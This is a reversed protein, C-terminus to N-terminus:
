AVRLPRPRFLVRDRRDEIVGAFHKRKLGLAFRLEAVGEARVRFPLRSNSCEKGKGRFAPGASPSRRCWAAVHFSRARHIAQDAAVDTEAFGLHRNAGGELRDHVAFLDRHERRRGHQRLLMEFGEPLAHEIIRDPDFHEAAEARLRFLAFDSCSSRSPPTSMTM